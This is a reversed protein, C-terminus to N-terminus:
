DDDHGEGTSTQSRTPQEPAEAGDDPNQTASFVTGTHSSHLPLQAVAVAGAGLALGAAVRRLRGARRGGRGAAPTSPEPVTGPELGPVPHIDHM